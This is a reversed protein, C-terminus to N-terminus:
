IKLIEKNYFFKRSFPANGRGRPTKQSHKNRLRPRTQRHTAGPVRAAAGDDGDQNQGAFEADVFDARPVFQDGSPIQINSLLRQLWGSM